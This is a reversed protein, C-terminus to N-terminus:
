PRPRGVMDLAPPCAPGSKRDRWSQLSAALIEEETRRAIRIPLEDIRAFLERRKREAAALMTQSRKRRTEQYDQFRTDAEAVVVRDFLWLRMSAASRYRPNRATKDPDGLLDAILRDSWGREKLGRASIHQPKDPM